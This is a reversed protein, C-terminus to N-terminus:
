RTTRRTSLRNSAGLQFRERGYATPPLTKVGLAAIQRTMRRSPDTNFARSPIRTTKPRHPIERVRGTSTHTEDLTPPFHRKCAGEHVRHTREAKDNRLHPTERVRGTSSVTQDKTPYPTWKVRGKSYDKEDNPPPSNRKCAGHQFSDPREDPLSDM